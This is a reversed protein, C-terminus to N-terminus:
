QQQKSGGAGGATTFEEQKEYTQEPVMNQGPTRNLQSEASVGMTETKIRLRQVPVRERTRPDPVQLVTQTKQACDSTRDLRLSKILRMRSGSWRVDVPIRHWSFFNIYFFIYKELRHRYFKNLSDILDVLFDVFLVRNINLNVVIRQYKSRLYGCLVM